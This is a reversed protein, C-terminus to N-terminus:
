IPNGMVSAFSIGLSKNKKSCQANMSTESCAMIPKIFKFTLYRAKKPKLKSLKTELDQGDEM